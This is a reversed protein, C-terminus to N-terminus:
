PVPARQGCVPCQERESWSVRDLEALALQPQGLEGRAAMRFGWLAETFAHYADHYGEDSLAAGGRVANRIEILRMFAIEAAKVLDPSGSLLLQERTGYLGSADVGQIAATYRDTDPIGQRAVDRLNAHAKDLALVLEVYAHLRDTELQRRRENRDSRVGGLLTGALAIVAGVAAAVVPIWASNSM